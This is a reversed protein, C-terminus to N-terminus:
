VQDNPTILAQHADILFSTQFAKENRADKITCKTRLGISVVGTTSLIERIVITIPQETNVYQNNNALQELLNKIKALNAGPAVFIDVTVLMGLSGASSSSVLDHMFRYSPITILNEDLTILKVSCLGISLVEGYTDQFTIRDGVQFPKNILLVITTVLSQLLEKASFGIAILSSIVFGFYLERTPQLIFCVASGFGFLYIAFNLFPVWNLILMRKTPFIKTIIRAGTRILATILALILLVGIFLLLEKFAIQMLFNRIQATDLM